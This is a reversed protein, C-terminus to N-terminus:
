LIAATQLSGFVVDNSTLCHSVIFINLLSDWNIKLKLKAGCCEVEFSVAAICPQDTKYSEDSVIFCKIGFTIDFSILHEPLYYHLTM